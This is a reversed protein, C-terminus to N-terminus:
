YLANVSQWHEQGYMIFSIAARLDELDINSLFSRQLEAEVSSRSPGRVNLLVLASQCLLWDLLKDMRARDLSALVRQGWLSIHLINAAVRASPRKQNNRRLLLKVVMQVDAPVSAPLPPLHREQFNRSELGQTGYFPNPQGFLEYAITGIAWADAKSYDITVGPGPVATAVEPAMLCGNGGRNVHRSNFPLKLGFDEALCCGFDTIVLRPCGTCDFELLINDSKLDRHAIGQRCLHDVGELLQLLMLSAQIWTPVCVELHQRLTCPYNKMILFLTRNSGLGMPNLRPPLVDPYEEQAGPLLPVDATFARYVRIVNPHATLRMPVTGFHGDLAIVGQGKPLAQPCSPVLEMSMSRLIADSSSGAGINWMMKMAFPFSSTTSFSLPGPNKKEEVDNQDLHVLSCKQNEASPAFPDAAEYVAANCGKGIQKGIVYDELRYGSTFPKLPSQFKKKRFVTQIEQCRKASRKDEELQQEILGLGVGFALFVARNRPSGGGVLRRFGGSQLRAALGSVSLRYFRYRAPLFSQPQVTSTPPSLRLREGRFKAAVRAAPKFLGLQFVSRGLELGRSLAHKVSM